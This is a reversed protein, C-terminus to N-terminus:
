LQPGHPGHKGRLAASVAIDMGKQMGKGYARAHGAAYGMVAGICYCLVMAGSILLIAETPTFEM